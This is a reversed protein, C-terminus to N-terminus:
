HVKKTVLKIVKLLEKLIKSFSTYWLVRMLKGVVSIENRVKNYIAM